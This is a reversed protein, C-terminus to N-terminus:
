LSLGQNNEQLFVHAFVKANGVMDDILCYENPQHAVSSNRSWVAAPYGDRRFFAAVTGGGIGVPRAELGYTERIAEKLAKVVPAEIPTAKPAQLESVVSIEIRVGFSTELDDALRRITNKVEPLPYGPLVRGDMYFVDEGPITNINPVNAEKKTPQFTSKPPLFLDDKLGFLGEIEALRVVLHSAAIFANNGQSPRSGHCQKGITRFKLWLMSKEAIEIQSGDESGWDPVIIFDLPRFPNYPSGLVYALGKQSATEEDSVFALGINKLPTIGEELFARAAFISAVLDQQNDVVGRGYIRGDKVYASYPPRDWLSLEGPPVIDLHSLIWISEEKNKGAVRAFINPRIGSSVRDDPANIETIDGFGVNKLYNKLLNGKELEGDGGNLPSLAPIATLAVQLEIMQERCSDIRKGIRELANSTM